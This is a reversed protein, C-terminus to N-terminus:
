LSCILKEIAEYGGYSRKLALDAESCLRIARIFSERSKGASATAYIKIRYESKIGLIKGIEALPCGDDQLTKIMFLDCIAHTVEPLVLVPDIRRFKMVHLAEIAKAHNSDLIANALAYADTTLVSCAVREVDDAKVEKRGNQLVYFSLKETENALSFMSRGCKEILMNCVAPTATAGHHEFHKAVWATLRAGSIPEFHVPTAVESLAKLAKSPAKPLRGEDIHGAPVSIILVNYDYENITSIAEVLADLENGKISSFSLGSITVIKKEGLMPMPMLANVLADPSYDIPDIRIDNFVAFSPDSCILERASKLSFGKLYDEDGFFIYAGSLGTKLQKRFADEKIIEM